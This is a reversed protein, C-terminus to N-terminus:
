KFPSKELHYSMKKFGTYWLYLIFPIFFILYYKANLVLITNYTGHLLWPAFYGMLLHKAKNEPEFKGLAFYYGMAVGFFAHGPVSFVARSLATDLGGFEPNLVYMINEVAAFGLSVFVSYVIGDFRENFNKNRWVLFYLFVYKVFEEVWSSIIFSMFLKGINSSLTNFFPVLMNQINIIISTAYAGFITGMLLLRVPEKEYKDRIYIYITCIIAPALAAQILNSM